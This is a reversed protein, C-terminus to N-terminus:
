NPLDRVQEVRDDEEDGAALQAREDAVVRDDDDRAHTHKVRTLIMRTSSVEQCTDITTMGLM